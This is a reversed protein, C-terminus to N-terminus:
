PVLKQVAVDIPALSIIEDDKSLSLETGSLRVQTAAKQWLVNGIQVKIFEALIAASAETPKLMVHVSIGIINEFIYTPCDHKIDDIVNIRVVPLVRKLLMQWNELNLAM